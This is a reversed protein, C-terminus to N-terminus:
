LEYETRVSAPDIEFPMNAEAERRSAPENSDKM